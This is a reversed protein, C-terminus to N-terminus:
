GVRLWKAADIEGVSAHRTGNQGERGEKAKGKGKREEKKERIKRV